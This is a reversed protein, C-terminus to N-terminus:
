PRYNFIPGPRAGEIQHRAIATTHALMEPSFERAHEPSESMEVATVLSDQLSAHKRELLLAMSHDRLPVLIRRLIWRYLIVALVIAVAALIVGRASAPMESSGVLVPLYDLALAIWFMAALWIAALSLGELWVYWRIRRRVGALARRIDPTLLVETTAQAMSRSGM